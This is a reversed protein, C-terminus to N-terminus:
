KKCALDRYQSVAQSESCDLLSVGVRNRVRVNRMEHEMNKRGAFSNTHL